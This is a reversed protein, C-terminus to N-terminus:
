LNKYKYMRHLGFAVLGMGIVWHHPHPFNPIYECGGCIFKGIDRRDHIILASGLTIAGLKAVTGLINCNEQNGTM